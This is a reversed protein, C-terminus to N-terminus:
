LKVPAKGTVSLWRTEKSYHVEFAPHGFTGPVSKVSGAYVTNEDEWATRVSHSAAKVTDIAQRKTM